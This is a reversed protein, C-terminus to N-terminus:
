SLTRIKPPFGSLSQGKSLKVSLQNLEQEITTVSTDNLIEIGQELLKATIKERIETDMAIAVSEAKEIITISIGRKSLAEAMELGIFGGGILLCSKPYHEEIFSKITIGDELNRLTFVHPLLTGDIPPIFARAGTALVLKDYHIIREKDRERILTEKKHFDIATAEAMTTISIHRKNIFDDKNIAILRGVERIHGGIFYPMGCAAYSVHDSKELVGITIDNNVRRAQSAASM